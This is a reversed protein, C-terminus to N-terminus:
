LIMFFTIITNSTLNTHQYILLALSICKPETAEFGLIIKLTKSGLSNKLIANLVKLILKSMIFIKTNQFSVIIQPIKLNTLKLTFIFIIPPFLLQKNRLPNSHQKGKSSQKSETCAMSFVSILNWM